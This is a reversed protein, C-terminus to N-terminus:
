ARHGGPFARQVKKELKERVKGKVAKLVLSLSISIGVRKGDVFWKGSFGKGKFEGSLGDPATSSDKVLKANSRVFDDILAQSKQMATQVDVGHVYVFDIDAM